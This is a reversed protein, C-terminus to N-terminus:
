VTTTEGFRPVSEINSRLARPSAPGGFRKFLVGVNQNPLEKQCKSLIALLNFFAEGFFAQVAQEMDADQHAAKALAGLHQRIGSAHWKVFEMDNMPKGVYLMIEQKTAKAYATLEDITVEADSGSELKSIAGQTKGLADALQQQTMGASRRMEILNRVIMTEESLGAVVKQVERSVSEGAMMEEVSGYQRGILPAQAKKERETSM